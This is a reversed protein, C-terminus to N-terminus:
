ISKIIGIPIGALSMNSIIIVAGEFVFKVSATIYLIDIGNILLHNFYDENYHSFLASLACISM